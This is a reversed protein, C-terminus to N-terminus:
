EMEVTGSAPWLIVNGNEDKEVKALIGFDNGEEDSSLVVPANRPMKALLTILEFATITKM